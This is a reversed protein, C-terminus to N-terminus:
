FGFEKQIDEIRKLGEELGEVEVSLQIYKMTDFPYTTKVVKLEEKKEALSKKTALIDSSL